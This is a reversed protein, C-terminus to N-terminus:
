ERHQEKTNQHKRAERYAFLTWGIGALTFVGFIIVSPTLGGFSTAVEMQSTLMATVLSATSFMGIIIWGAMQGATYEKEHMWM